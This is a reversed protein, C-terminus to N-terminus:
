SVADLVTIRVQGAMIAGPPFIGNSVAVLFLMIDSYPVQSPSV